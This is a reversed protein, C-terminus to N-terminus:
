SVTITSGSVAAKKAELGKEAPGKEVAGTEANFESGHCPCTIKGGDVKSVLCGEHPCVATFAKYSGASPQTVVVKAGEDVFGGNVPVKSTEIKTGAAGGGGGSSPSAASPSGSSASEGSDSSSCAALLGAGGVIPVGAVVM